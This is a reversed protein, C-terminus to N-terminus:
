NLKKPPTLACVNADNGRGSTYKELKKKLKRGKTTKSDRCGTVSNINKVVLTEQFYPGWNRVSSQTLLPSPAYVGIYYEILRM